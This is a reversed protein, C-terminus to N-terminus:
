FLIPKNIISYVAINKNLRKFARGLQWAKKKEGV